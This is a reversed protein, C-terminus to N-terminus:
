LEPLGRSLSAPAFLRAPVARSYSVDALEFLTAHGTQHNRAEIRLATWIGDIERVDSITITKLPEQDRDVFDIEVPMWTDADVVAQFGGYGLERAVRDSVPEGSLTYLTRGGEEAQAELRFRYDALDFKLDSQMDEYTFDTGLFYDGRKSAPIRRVKRTAPLYLWRDDARSADHFDHSLFTVERVRKPELYSIRTQRMDDDQRKLVWARRVRVRDRRDTLTMRVFRSVMAGEPREAVRQAIERGKPSDAHAGAAVVLLAGSLLILLLATTGGMARVARREQGARRTQLSSLAPVVILTIAFSSFVALTVLGGFRQLTPLDSAMLTAFGVGLAAANFFCARATAPMATEIISDTDAGARQAARLRDLLHIAFDVGVGVSIAAFMSTAPELYIGSVGMMAYLILITAAVPVVAILGTTASRFVLMAMVLVLALSVGVGLFHSRQLRTMWHYTANVDGALTARLGSENFRERLYEQLAEVTDRSASFYPTALIGRILATDYEPSIEEELDTPDGSAEYVLLYQAVADDQHPLTREPAAPQENLAAHMLSLYDAISATQAVWPLSEFHAQLEAIRQMSRTTLLGDPAVSEVIVDLFATGSFAANIREDALRIATDPAFNDVQSRDIRLQSAGAGALILVGSFVALVLRPRRASFVGARTLARGLRDPKQEAWSRFAPSPALRLLALCCPLTVISFLWALAVGLAAYWAFYAIPPMIAIMGIGAFGAMTTLTTLTIPRTMQTMAAVVAADPALDPNAARTQYYTSLIHISDAVAIAVIIVPLANTIAFYPVGAWGMLGLAGGAAAVVLLLPGTLAAARRFALYLFALVLLFVLPQLVRADADIQASLVASVAAPGAVLIDAQPHAHEDALRRVAAYTEAARRVDNVEALIIAGSADEAALTGVHPPMNRWRREAERAADPTVPLAEVYPDVLLAGDDGRIASETALSAVRDARVNPLDAIAETLTATLALLEPRFVSGGDRTMVAVAIPDSLGFVDRIRENAQISPHDPPVFADVSTEKVLRSLGAASALILLVSIILVSRRYELLHEFAAALSAETWPRM